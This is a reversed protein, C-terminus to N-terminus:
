DDLDELAASEYTWAGTEVHGGVAFTGPEVIQGATDDMGHVETELTWTGGELAELYGDLVVPDSGTVRFRLRYPLGEEVSVPAKSIHQQTFGGDIQRTITLAGGDGEVFLLYGTVSGAADIDALQARLVCQPNGFSGSLDLWTLELTAEADLWDGGPRYVLNDQYSTSGSVRRIGGDVLAFAEPTKEIWGNGVDDANPREFDDFFGGSSQAGTSSSDDSSDDVLGGTTTTSSWGSSTQTSASGVATTESSSTEPELTSSVPEGSTTPGSSSSSNGDGVPVCDDGSPTFEGFRRGSECAADPFSCSGNSECLGQAGCQGDQSCVYTPGSGCGLLVGALAACAVEIWRGGM